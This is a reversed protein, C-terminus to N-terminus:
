CALLLLISHKTNIIANFDPTAVINISLINFIRGSIKVFRQFWFSVHM